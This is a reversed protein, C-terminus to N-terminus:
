KKKPRRHAAGGRAPPNEDAPRGRGHKELKDNLAIALLSQVTTDLELALSKWAKLVDGDFFGSLLRKGVRSRQRAAIVMDEPQNENPM